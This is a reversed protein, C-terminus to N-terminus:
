QSIFPSKRLFKKSKIQNIIAKVVSDRNITQWPLPRKDSLQYKSSSNEKMIPSRLITWDLNSKELLQIHTESDKLVKVAMVTVFTHMLRHVISLKDGNARAEAGTLTIIRNIGLEQMAPIINKMGESLIDKKATGWSGLTSIAVLSNQLAKKVDEANYIDGQVITLSSNEDFPNSGHIFAVVQYGLELAEEVVLRGVRGNAGFVTIKM